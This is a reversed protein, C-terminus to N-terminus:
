YILHQGLEDDEVPKKSKRYFRVQLVTGVLTFLIFLGFFVYYGTKKYVLWCLEM